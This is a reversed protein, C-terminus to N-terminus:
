ALKPRKHLQITLRPRSMGSGEPRETSAGDRPKILIASASGNGTTATATRSSWSHGRVAGRGHRLHAGVLAAGEAHPHLAAVANGEPERVFAPSSEIGLFKLEDQFYGSVYQNGHDHRAQLGTVIDAEDDGFITRVGQRRPAVAEFRM